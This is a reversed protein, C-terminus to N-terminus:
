LMVNEKLVNKYVRTYRHEIIKHDQMLLLAFVIEIM